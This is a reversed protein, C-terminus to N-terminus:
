IIMPIRISAITGGDTGGTLSLSCGNGMILKLRQNVNRVGINEREFLYEKQMAENLSKLEPESIGAGDDSVEMLITEKEPKITIKINGEKRLPKLGHYIANEILPQLCLKVTKYNVVTEDVEWSVTFKEKYRAKMIKIYMGTYKIEDEITIMNEETDLCIRYLQSLCTIVDSVDNRGNTLKVAMWKITDLTNYLFHPTIQTQLATLQAKNLMYLQDQLEAKLQNNSYITKIINGAIDRIENANGKEKAGRGSSWEVPNSMIYMIKRIPEFTKVSILLSIFFAALIGIFLIELIFDRVKEQKQSFGSVPLVSIYKWSQYSSKLISVICNQDNIKIIDSYKTNEWPIISFRKEDKINRSILSKESSYIVTDYENVIIITDLTEDTRNILKGLEDVNVNVVVAGLKDKGYIHAPRILSIQYPYINNKSRFQIWPSNDARQMYIDYLSRDRFNDIYGSSINSIVYNNKTSFVNISDIYSYILAFTNLYDHIKKYAEESDYLEESSRLFSNVEPIISIETAIRDLDQFIADTVDKVRNLSNINITSIEEEVVAYMNKYIILSTIAIPLIILLLILLFNKILLSNFRYNKIYYWIGQKDSM